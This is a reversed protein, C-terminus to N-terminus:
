NKQRTQFFFCQLFTKTNQLPQLFIAGLILMCMKRMSQFDQCKGALILTRSKKKM